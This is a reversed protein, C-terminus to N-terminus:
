PSNVSIQSKLWDLLFNLNLLIEPKINPFIHYLNYLIYSLFIYLIYTLHYHLHTSSFMISTNLKPCPCTSTDGFPNSCQDPKSQPLAWKRWAPAREKLAYHAEPQESWRCNGQFKGLEGGLSKPMALILYTIIYKESLTIFSNFSDIDLLDPNRFLLVTSM